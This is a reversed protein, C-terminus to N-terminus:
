SECTEIKSYIKGFKASNLKAFPCMELRIFSLLKFLSFFCFFHGIKVHLFPVFQRFLTGRFHRGKLLLIFLLLCNGAPAAPQPPSLPPPPAPTNMELFLLYSSNIVDAPSCFAFRPCCGIVVALLCRIYVSSKALSWSDIWGSSFNGWPQRIQDLTKKSSCM